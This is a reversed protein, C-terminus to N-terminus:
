APRDARLLAEALSRHKPFQRGFATALAYIRQTLEASAAVYEDRQFRDYASKRKREAQDVEAAMQQLQRLMAPEKVAVSQRLIELIQGRIERSSPKATGPVAPIRGNIPTSQLWM